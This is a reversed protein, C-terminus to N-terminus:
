KRRKRKKADPNEFSMDVSGQLSSILNQATPANPGNPTAKLYNQFAEITGEAPITNGKDDVSAQGMLTLGIQYYAEPYPPTSTAADQFAKIAAEADGQNMLTAGLNYHFKGAANPALLAANALEQKGEDMKGQKILELGVNNHFNPDDPKLEIAKRYAAIAENRAATAAEGRQSNAFQSSAIALQGWIATQSPDIEGAKKFSAIAVEFNRAKAAEMGANYADNLEKNKSIQERRKGLREEYRKRQDASMNNLQQETLQGSEAAKQDAAERALDFDLVAADGAVAPKVGNVRAKEVGEVELIVSYLGMQLFGFLYEGRKNTKVKAGGPMEQREVRVVADKVPQGDPGLVKGGLRGTQASAFGASILLGIMLLAVQYAKAFM